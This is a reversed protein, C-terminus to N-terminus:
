HLMGRRRLLLLLSLLRRQPVIDHPIDMSSHIGYKELIKGLFILERYRPLVRRHKRYLYFWEFLELRPNSESERTVQHSAGTTVNV